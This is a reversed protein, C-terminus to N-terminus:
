ELDVSLVYRKAYDGVKIEVDRQQVPKAYNSSFDYGIEDSITKVSVQPADAGLKLAGSGAVERKLREVKADLQEDLSLSKEKSPVKVKMPKQVDVIPKLSSIVNTIKGDNDVAVSVFGSDANLSEMKDNVQRFQVITEVVKADSQSGTKVNADGMFTNYTVSQSLKIGKAIGLDDILGRAIDTAKSESIQSGNRYNAKAMQLQLTGSPDLYLAVNKTGIKRMGDQGVSIIQSTRKTVGIKNAIKSLLDDEVLSSGLLLVEPNQPVVLKAAKLGRSSSSERWMYSCVNNGVAQNYFFREDNLRSRSEQVNSGFAAVVPTQKKSISWSAELFAASFSKGKKWQNWFNSGYKKSDVSTTEYGFIMRLGGKNPGRWTRCPTHGDHVRLSLCTSWFLYRLKEDIVMSSSRAWTKGGWASGMPASFVGNSDNMTGHGSHYFVVVADMGYLDQWNDYPEEYMWAQVGSDKRWFNAPTFSTPYDLFGSADEHTYRLDSIGAPFDEISCAGYVCANGGIKPSGLTKSEKFPNEDILKKYSM